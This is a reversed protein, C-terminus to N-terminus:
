ITPSIPCCVIGEQVSSRGDFLRPNSMPCGQTQGVLREVFLSTTLEELFRNTQILGTTELRQGVLIGDKTFIAPAEATPRLSAVPIAAKPYTAARWGGRIAAWGDFGSSNATWGAWALLSADARSLVIVCTHSIASQLVLDAGRCAV